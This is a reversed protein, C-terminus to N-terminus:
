IIENITIYYYNYDPISFKYNLIIQIVSYLIICYKTYPEIM